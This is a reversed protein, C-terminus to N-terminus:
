DVILLEDPVYCEYGYQNKFIKYVIRTTMIDIFLITTIITISYLLNKIVVFAIIYLLNLMVISMIKDRKRRKENIIPIEPVDAPVHVWIVYLSFIYTFITVILLINTQGLMLLKPIYISGLVYVISGIFCGINTHLHVGGTFTKYLMTVLMVLCFEKIIGLFSCIIIIAIYKPIDEVIRTIGFLLIERQEESDEESSLMSLIKKSIKDIM